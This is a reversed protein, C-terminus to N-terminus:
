SCYRVSKVIYGPLPLSSMAKIDQLTETYRLLNCYVTLLNETYQGRTSQVQLSLLRAETPVLPPEVQTGGSEARVWGQHHGRRVGEPGPYWWRGGEEQVHRSLPSRRGCGRRLSIQTNLTHNISGGFSVSFLVLSCITMLEFVLNLNLRGQCTTNWMEFTDRLNVFTGGGM